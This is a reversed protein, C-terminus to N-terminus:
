SNELGNINKNDSVKSVLLCKYIEKYSFALFLNSLLIFIAIPLGEPAIFLHVGLINITIPFILITTLPIFRNVIFSIGCILETAKILPMLYVSANIGDNFIKMSGSLEPQPFLHFFYSVSGFLLLSGFLLRIIFITTRM